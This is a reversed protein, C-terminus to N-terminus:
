VGYVSGDEDDDATPLLEHSGGTRAAKKRTPKKTPEPEPESEDDDPQEPLMLGSNIVVVISSASKLTKFPTHNSMLFSGEKNKYYMRFGDNLFEPDLWPTLVDDEITTRVERATPSGEFDVEFQTGEEEANKTKVTFSLNTVVPKKGSGM